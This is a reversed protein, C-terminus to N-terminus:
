RRAALAVGDATLSFAIVVDVVLTIPEARKREVDFSAPNAREAFLLHGRFIGAVAASIGVLLFVTNTFGHLWEKVQWAVACVVLYLGIVIM